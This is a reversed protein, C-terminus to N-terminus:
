WHASFGHRHGCRMKAPRVASGNQRTRRTRAPATQITRTAWPNEQDSDSPQKSAERQIAQEAQRRREGVSEQDPHETM